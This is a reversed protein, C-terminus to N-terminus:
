TIVPTFMIRTYFRTPVVGNPLCYYSFKITQNKAVIGMFTSSMNGSKIANQGVLIDNGSKNEYCAVLHWVGDDTNNLVSDVTAIYCYTVGEMLFSTYFSTGTTENSERYYSKLASINDANGKIEKNLNAVSSNVSLQVNNISSNLQPLYDRLNIDIGNLAEVNKIIVDDYFNADMAVEMSDTEAIKGIGLGRGGARFDLLVDITSIYFEKSSSRGLSDSVIIKFDYGNTEEFEKTLTTNTAKPLEGYMTWSSVTRKKYYLIGTSSNRNDISSYSWNAYVTVERKNQSGRTVYFSNVSPNSYPYVYITGVNVQDSLRSRSDYCNVSFSKNGSSTFTSGLYSLSNGSVRASYSGAINFGSISSGSAGNATASIIAKSFGSVYVGWGNVISNSSNDIQINASTIAPKISSPVTTTFNVTKSGIKTSGNYTDVIITGTGSVSNPVQNAFDTPITWNCSDTVGTQITGSLKGFCYKITHTFAASRRNTFITTVTGMDGVSSLTPESARAITDLAWSGSGYCNTSTSYIAASVSVSLTCLGDDNHKIIITGDKVNQGNRVKIRTNASKDNGQINIYFPGGMMYKYADNLVGTLRWYITTTNNSIDQSTSVWAFELCCTLGSANYGSTYFSGSAM